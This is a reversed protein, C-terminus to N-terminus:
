RPMIPRALYFVPARYRGETRAGEHPVYVVGESEKLRRIAMAAEHM